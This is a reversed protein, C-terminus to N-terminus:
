VVCVVSVGPNLGNVKSHLNLVASKMQLWNIRFLLFPIFLPFNYKMNNDPPSKGLCGGEELITSFVAKEEM